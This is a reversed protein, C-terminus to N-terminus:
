GGKALIPGKLPFLQYLDGSNVNDQIPGSWENLDNAQKRNIIHKKDKTAYSKRM